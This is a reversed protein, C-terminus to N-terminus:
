GARSARRRAADGRVRKRIAPDEQHYPIASGGKNLDIAGITPSSSARSPRGQLARQNNPGHWASIGCRRRAPASISTSGTARWRRRRCSGSRSTTRACSRTPRATRGRSRASRKRGRTPTARARRRLRAGRDFPAQAGQFLPRDRARRDLCLLPQGGDAARRPPLRALPPQRAAARYNVIDPIFNTRRMALGRIPDPEVDDNPKFFDDAGSFRETFNHPCNFIFNPNDILNMVNPASTGCLILAPSSSANVIRHFANLPIAFLSGKQWEFSTSRPRAKRGSRPRAAAKSWWARGERLSAARCQARRRGAGRGRVHGVARRHRLAPHLHRPRRAAEVAADAPGARAARRHRSLGARGGGGHLQRLADAQAPIQRLRRERRGQARALPGPDTTDHM